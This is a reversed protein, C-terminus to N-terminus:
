FVDKDVIQEEIDLTEANNKELAYLMLLTLALSVLGAQWPFEQKEIDIAIQGTQYFHAALVMLANNTFHGLIPMWLSGTFYFVYGLIGGLLFRPVFGAFQFHIASFIFATVWIAVHPEAFIKKLHQQLMGRFFFEEGLAPVVAFLLINSWFEYSHETKLISKILVATSEEMAKMWEPLALQQNIAYTYQILPISVLMIAVSLLLNSPKSFVNIKLVKYWEKQAVIYACLIAPLIFTTANNLLAFLRAANRQAETANETILEQWHQPDYGMVMQLGILLLGGAFGCAFFLFFLFSIIRQAPM